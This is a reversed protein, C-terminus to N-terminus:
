ACAVSHDITEAILEIEKEELSHYLPLCLITNAVSEANPMAGGSVFELTNLSPYFYRRPHVDKQKLRELTEQMKQQNEFVIPFYSYNWEADPNILQTRYGNFSLSHMYKEVLLKRRNQINDFHPLISLGMAAQFESMKANIGLGFYKEPGDHGFNHSYFAKHMLEKDNTIFAGGEGTHFIKTAHFSCTNVDGYEFISKGKYQVNYCHASDYITKLGHKKAIREVAEIEVPNGFVHTLLIAATNDTIAEEIKSSDINFTYPDIDVFVPTCNEWLISSTTAIYSFPTTIIEGSNGLLKVAIQLPLTGNTMLLVHNISQHKCIERELELVFSGRNTLWQNEWILKIRENYEDFPPLFSKTVPIM